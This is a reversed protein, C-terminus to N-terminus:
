YLSLKLLVGVWCVVTLPSRQNCYYESSPCTPSPRSKSSLSWSSNGGRPLKSSILPTTWRPTKGKATRMATMENLGQHRSPKSWRPRPTESGSLLTSTDRLSPIFVFVHTESFLILLLLYNKLANTDRFVQAIYFHRAFQTHFCVFPDWWVINITM